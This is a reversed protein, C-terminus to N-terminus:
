REKGYPPPRFVFSTGPRLPSGENFEDVDATSYASFVQDTNFGAVAMCSQEGLEEDEYFGIAHGMEHCAAHQYLKRRQAPTFGYARAFNDLRTNDFVVAVGSVARYTRSGFGNNWSLSVWNGNAETDIVFYISIALDEPGAWANLPARALSGRFFIIDNARPAESGGCMHTGSTVEWYTCKPYHVNWRYVGDGADIIPLTGGQENYTWGECASTGHVYPNLLNHFKRVNKNDLAGVALKGMNNYMNPDMAAEIADQVGQNLYNTIPQGAGGGAEQANPNDLRHYYGGNCWSVPTKDPVYCGVGYHCPDCQGPTGSCVALRTTGTETETDTETWGTKDLPRQANPSYFIRTEGGLEGNPKRVIAHVVMTDQGSQRGDAQPAGNYGPPLFTPDQEVMDSIEETTMETEQSCGVSLAALAAVWLWHKVTHKM